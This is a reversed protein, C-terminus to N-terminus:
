NVAALTAADLHSVYLTMDWEDIVIVTGGSAFADAHSAGAQLPQLSAVDVSSQADVDFRRAVVGNPQLYIIDGTVAPNVLHDLVGNARVLASTVPRPNRRFGPPSAVAYRATATDIAIWFSRFPVDPVDFTVVGDNDSDNAEYTERIRIPMYGDSGLGVTLLVVHAGLTVSSVTVRTAALAVVPDTVTQAIAQEVVAALLACVIVSHLVLRKM